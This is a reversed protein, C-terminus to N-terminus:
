SRRRRIGLLGLILLPLWSGTSGVASCTSPDGKTGDGDGPGPPNVNNGPVNNENNANNTPFNNSNNTNNVNNGPQNNVPPEGACEVLVSFEEVDSFGQNSINLAFEFVQGDLTKEPFAVDVVRGSPGELFEVTQEDALEQWFYNAGCMEEPVMVASFQVVDGCNATEPVTELQAEIMDCFGYTPQIWSAEEATLGAAELWPGVEPSAMEMVWANNERGSIARAEAEFGTEVMLHAVACATGRNDFFYPVRDKQFDVNEPFQGALRYETLYDLTQQRAQQKAEPWHSVDTARLHSEVSELHGQIETTQNANATAPVILAACFALIHKKM